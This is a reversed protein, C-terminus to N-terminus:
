PTKVRPVHDAVSAYLADLAQRPTTGGRFVASGAVLLDCGASVAEHATTLNIGGDISVRLDARLAKLRRCKSLVKPEFSQGGFGPQVSMVLVTDLEDLYPEITSIPTAPNLSLGAEVGAKRIHRLLPVPDHDIEIHFILTDCGAAVFDDVYRGPHTMMLHTDFTLDTNKRWETILPAGFTLNPVFHGDMVDLHVVQVGDAELDHLVDDVRGFDCSLLSPAFVPSGAEHLRRLRERRDIRASSM